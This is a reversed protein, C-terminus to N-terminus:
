KGAREFYWLFTRMYRKMNWSSTLLLKRNSNKLLCFFYEVGNREAGRPARSTASISFHLNPVVQMVQNIITSKGSGSPASFIIVKGRAM